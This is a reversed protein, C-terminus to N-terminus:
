KLGCLFGTFVGNPNSNGYSKDEVMWLFLSGNDGGEEGGRGSTHWSWPELWWSSSKPNVLSKRNRDEDEGHPNSELVDLYLTHNTLVKQIRKFYLFTIKGKHMPNLFLTPYNHMNRVRNPSPFYLSEPKEWGPILAM